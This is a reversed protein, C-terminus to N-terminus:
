KARLEPVYKKAAEVPDGITYGAIQRRPPDGAIAAASETLGLVGVRLAKRGIREGKVERIVYPKFPKLAASSPVVNASVFTDLAPFEKLSADYTKSAMVRSLFPLDRYSANAALVHIYDLSRLIWENKIRVDDAMGSPALEDSFAHGADMQLIPVKGATFKALEVAYSARRALGGM